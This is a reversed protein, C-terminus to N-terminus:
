PFTNQDYRNGLAWENHPKEDRWKRLAAVLGPVDTVGASPSLNARALDLGYPLIHMHCDNFGPVVTRGGLDFVCAGGDMREAVYVDSGLVVIRGARIGVSHAAPHEADMTIVNANRLILDSM